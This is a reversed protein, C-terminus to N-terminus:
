YRLKVAGRVREMTDCAIARAKESGAQLVDRLTSPKSLVQARRERMPELHANLATALKNKVEVDGVKGARYRTKLDEVEAADPNFADHYMFVPNGEVTGPIDARVRKPDTYMQMVKKRVTEADDSLNITNGYSKSMKRNDVGPLRPFTTLLPQPEVFLEGYFNHYRRV